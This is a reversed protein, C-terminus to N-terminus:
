RYVNTGHLSALCGGDEECLKVLEKALNKRGREPDDRRMQM